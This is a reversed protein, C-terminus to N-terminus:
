RVTSVTLTGTKLGDGSATLTLASPTDTSQIIVQALGNFAPITFSKCDKASPHDQGPYMPDGNGVSLICSFTLLPCADPVVRGRKDQVEVTVVAVYASATFAM